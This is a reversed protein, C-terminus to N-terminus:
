EDCVCREKHPQITHIIYGKMTLKYKCSRYDRIGHEKFVDTNVGDKNDKLLSLMIETQPRKDEFVRLTQLVSQVAETFTAM